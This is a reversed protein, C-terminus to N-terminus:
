METVLTLRAVSLPLLPMLIEDEELSSWGDMFANSSLVSVRHSDLGLESLSHSAM